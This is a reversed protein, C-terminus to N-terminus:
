KDWFNNSERFYIEFKRSIGTIGFVSKLRKLDEDSHYYIMWKTEPPIETQIKNLYPVDVDDFSLGLCVIQDIDRLASFFANHTSIIADTNKYLSECFNATANCISEYWEVHEEMAETAKRRYSDIIYKNGHGMIPPIKCCSSAGGHLHLVYRIGYASELTDTYNFSMFLDNDNNILCDKKCTVNSTDITEVWELVYKQLEDVFGYQKRWYADMTDIIGQEPMTDVMSYAFDYMEDVDPHGIEEEFNRWLNHIVSQNWKEQAEKTYWPETDDLPQISYMGEFTALFSEHNKNLFARFASYSTKIGHAIDFGNGFIYLTKM